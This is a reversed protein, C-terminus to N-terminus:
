AKAEFDEPLISLLEVEGLKGEAALGPLQKGMRIDASNMATDITKRIQGLQEGPGYEKVINYVAEKLIKDAGNLLRYDKQKIGAYAFGLLEEETYSSLHIRNQFMEMLKPCIRFLKNMNKRNVEFIVAIDGRYYRILELLKNVASAKLESANEIVLCCDKLADKKKLIDISNLKEATIKAVKSSKLRGTRYLFISIDKALETKGSGSAGTIIMQVSKTRRDLILELSNALQKRVHRVHLFNGFVEFLDFDYEEAIQKLRRGEGEDEEEILRKLEAEAETDIRDRGAFIYERKSVQEDQAAHDGAPEEYMTNDAAPKEYMTNDASSKEYATNDAAPEEYVTDYAAPKEYAANDAAPEEYAANDAASEEYAANDESPEGYIANDKAPEEYAANDATPEEYAANDAYRSKNDEGSLIEEVDKKMTEILEDVAKDDSYEVTINEASIDDDENDKASKINNASYDGEAKKLEDKIDWRSTDQFARRKLEEMIEDKDAEGSYYARLLRAKEVYSGEGFWLIIDSCERICEEEMGAKYYLKALEYAWQEIYEKKKLAKLHDILTKYPKGRRKDIQYRFIHIYFDDPAQKEYESLYMVAEDMSNKKIATYILRFLATRTKTRGYVKYYIDYAEEYRGNQMYVEAMLSLDATNKVKKIDITDLVRLASSYDGARVKKRLEETKIMIEYGAM